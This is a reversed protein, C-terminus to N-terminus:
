RARLVVDLGTIHIRLGSKPQTYLDVGRTPASINSYKVQFDCGVLRM